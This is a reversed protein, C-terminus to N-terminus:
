TNLIIPINQILRPENELVQELGRNSSFNFFFFSTSNMMVRTLGYKAWTLKVYNEMSPFALRKGIFYGYFNNSFRNNVEEISKMPLTFGADVVTANNLPCFSVKRKPQDENLFTAYSVLMTHMDAEVTEKRGYMREMKSTFNNWISSIDEEGVDKDM